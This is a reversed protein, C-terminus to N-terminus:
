LIEYTLGLQLGEKMQTTISQDKQYVLQYNLDVNVFSNVKATIDNDWRVDWVGLSDFRSFLRLGTTLVINRAIKLTGHTVSEVGPQIKTAANGNDTYRRYNRAFVEQLAIGLRTSVGKIKSYGFGLSQTVYGPDFFDAIPVPPNSNYSYGTTIATFITNSIFPNTSWGVNYALVSEILLQNDTTISNQNDLKTRGYAAKVINQISWTKGNHDYAANIMGTWSLSNAGGQTWNSFAVQSVNLGTTLKPVWSPKAKKKAQKVSDAKATKVMRVSDAKVTKVLRASDAKVIRVTRVSDAGVTVSAFASGSLLIIVIAILMGRCSTKM